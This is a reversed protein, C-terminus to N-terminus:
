NASVDTVCRVLLCCACLYLFSLPDRTLTTHIACHVIVKM